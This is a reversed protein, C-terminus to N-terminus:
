RYSSINKTAGYHTKTLLFLVLIQLSITNITSANYFIYDFLIYLLLILSMKNTKFISFISIIYCLFLIVGLIGRQFFEYVVGTISGRSEIGMYYDSDSYSGEEASVVYECGKGFVLQSNDDKIQDIMWTVAGIRGSEVEDGKDEIGSSYRIAYNITYDFDFKGWIKNEPNLSPILRFGIYVFLLIFPIIILIKNLIKQIPTNVIYLLMFCAPFIFWVARKGTAFGILLLGLIFIVGKASLRMKTHLAYWFLGLVPLTTGAAGGAFGTISGVWGEIFNNPNGIILLKAICFLIQFLLLNGILSNITRLQNIKAQTIFIYFFCLPIIVKSLQSFVLLIRDNHIIFSNILFYIIYMGLFLAPIKYKKLIIINKKDNFFLKLTYAFILVKFINYGVAGLLDAFMGQFFLVIIFVCLKSFKFKNVLLIFGALLAFNYLYFVLDSVESLRM